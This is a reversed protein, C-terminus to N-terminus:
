TYSRTNSIELAKLEARKMNEATTRISQAVKQINVYNEKIRDQVLEMKRFYQPSNDSQWATKLSYTTNAMKDSALRNLKQAVEDLREAQKMAQTYNFLIEHKTM